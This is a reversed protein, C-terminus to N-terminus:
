VTNSNIVIELYLFRPQVRQYRSFNSEPEEDSLADAFSTNNSVFDSSM